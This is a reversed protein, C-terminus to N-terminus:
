KLLCLADVAVFGDPGNILPNIDISEIWESGGAALRGVAVLLEVLQGTNWGAQGRFGRVLDLDSFEEVLSRAEDADFPAMRGGVRKLMNVFIGGLGFVVLPGLETTQIGAFVEGFSSIMPQIAVNLPLSAEAAAKRLGSVAEALERESVNVRVLGLETRHAVDALKVVYPPGFALKTADVDEDSGVLQYDAVPIGAASLLRMAEAFPLMRGEGAPLYECDPRAMPEVAQLARAKARYRTVDGLSKLGRLTSRLGRGIVVPGRVEDAWQGPMGVWFCSCVFPKSSQASVRAFDALTPTAMAQDEEALIHFFVLADLEPASEYRSVIEAWAGMSLGPVDLPNAVSLGPIKERLWPSFHEMAPVALGEEAAVDVSLSAMGGAGTLIGLGRVESWKQPPLQELFQLRDIAEDPDHAILVGAQTLAVDYTWADGALAGTHSAAMRRSRESRALKIAVIVKGAETARRIASFFPGPRRVTEIVLAIATTDPDDALFDVYDALDTAAENGASIVLNVGLGRHAHVSEVLAHMVSGSQSVISIGGPRDAESLRGALSVRRRIDAYGLCNPGIVAMGTSRAAASLRNQLALGDEGWDAFGAAIVVLGGVDLTAAEEALHTSLEASVLSVVADVPRGISTLSPYTSMGLVTPRNPHIIFVERGDAVMRSVDAHRHGATGSLGAVAISTPKLLRRLNESTAL